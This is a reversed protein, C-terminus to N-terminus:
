GESAAQGSALLRSEVFGALANVNAFAEQGMDDNEVKFGFEQELGLILELADVSDLGLGEGFLSQDDAIEDPSLGELMLSDVIVRKIRAHLNDATMGNDSQLGHPPPARKAQGGGQGPGM